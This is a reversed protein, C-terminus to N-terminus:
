LNLAELKEVVRQVFELQLEAAISEDTEAANSAINFGEAGRLCAWTAEGYVDGVSARVDSLHADDNLLRKQIAKTESPKATGLNIDLIKGIDKWHAIEVLVIGLSYIDYSKKFPRTSATPEKPGDGHAQPHRYVDFPASQCPKDTLDESLAPRSYDFGSLFPRSYDPQGAGHFFVINHSSLGKHLWNVSHLYLLSQSIKDALRIRDTLSPKTTLFLQHLSIPITTPDVDSPKEFVFGLGGDPHLDECYGVCKPVHFYDLKQDSRLLAALQRIRRIVKEDRAHHPDQALRDFVKWEVWVRRAPGSEPRYDYESRRDSDSGEDGDSLTLRSSELETGGEDQSAELSCKLEKFRALKEVITGSEAIGIQRAQTDDSRSFALASILQKLDAVSDNLQLLTMSTQHQAQLLRQSQSEDVLHHLSDNLRTLRRILTEFRGKDTISWRIGDTLSPASQRTNLWYSIANRVREPMASSSASIRATERPRHNPVVNTSQEPRINEYRTEIKLYANLATQIEFLIGLLLASNLELNSSLRPGRKDMLGAVQSWELIRTQEM